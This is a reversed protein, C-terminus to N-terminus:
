LDAKGTNSPSNTTSKEQLRLTPAPSPKLDNQDTIEQNKKELTSFKLSIPHIPQPIYKNWFEFFPLIILTYILGSSHSIQELM